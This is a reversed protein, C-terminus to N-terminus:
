TAAPEACEQQMVLRARFPVRSHFLSNMGRKIGVGDDDATGASRRPAGPGGFFFNVNINAGVAVREKCARLADYVGCSLDFAKGLTQLRAFCNRRLTFGADAFLFPARLFAGPAASHQFGHLRFRRGFRYSGGCRHCCCFRGWRARGFRSRGLSCRLGGRMRARRARPPRTRCTRRPFARRSRRAFKARRLGACLRSGGRLHWRCWQWRCFCRRWGLRRGCTLARRARGCFRGGGFIGCWLIRRRFIGCCGSGFLLEGAFRCRGRRM